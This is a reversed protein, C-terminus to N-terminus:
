TNFIELILKWFFFWIQDKSVDPVKFKPVKESFRTGNDIRLPWIRNANQILLRWGIRYRSSTEFDPFHLIFRNLIATTITLCPEKEHFNIPFQDSPNQYMYTCYFTYFIPPLWVTLDTLQKILDTTMPLITRYWDTPRWERSQHRDPWRM